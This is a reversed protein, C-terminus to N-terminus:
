SVPFFFGLLNPSQSQIILTVISIHGLTVPSSMLHFLFLPNHVSNQHIFSFCVSLVLQYNGLIAHRSIDKCNNKNEQQKQHKSLYRFSSPYLPPKSIDTGSWMKWPMSYLKEDQTDMKAGFAIPTWAGAAICSNLDLKPFIFGPMATSTALVTNRLSWLHTKSCTCKGQVMM